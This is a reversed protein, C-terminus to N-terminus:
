LLALHAKIRHPSWEDHLSREIVWDITAGLTERLAARCAEGITTLTTHAWACARSQHLQAMLLSHLLLVLYMHRTQGERKRLQCDGMGLHQKGDRHQTETGTWRKAYVRVVRTVEWITRNTILMKIPQAAHQDAWLIVLRVAHDVTPLHITKTFSWQTKGGRGERELPKRQEPAIETAFESAKIERGGVWLKRNFKLDGVYARAHAHIHNMVAASTFYSDFTFDGPIERTVVWDILECCLVTHDKFVTLARQAEEAAALGGPRSALLDRWAECDERKRFRRFELAYHKGSPCVYNAILYDHAVVHRNEAHDWLWGVDDILEGDHGILVNDIPIVGSRAYRTDPQRQLWALREENLANVDWKVETIWRNLCSQDTTEAFERSIGNVTKREAVLLGTLYEAFHVREPENAFVAGFETVAQKVVTPFEIIGPM